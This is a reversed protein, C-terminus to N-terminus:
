GQVGCHISNVWYDDKILPASKRRANKSKAVPLFESRYIKVLEDAREASNTLEYCMDSALKYIFADMFSASYKNTDTEFCVYQIGFETVDALITEGEVGWRANENSVAFVEVFDSPLQYYVNRGDNEWEPTTTLQNLVARKSAFSWCCESLISKLSDNYTNKAAKAELTNDSMSTLRNCGLLQLANNIISIKSM